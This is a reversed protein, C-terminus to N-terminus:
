FDETSQRNMGEESGVGQCGSIKKSDKYNQRKWFIIHNPNYLIYCKRIQKKLKTFHM